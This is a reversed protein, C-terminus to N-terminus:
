LYRVKVSEQGEWNLVEKVVAIANTGETDKELVGAGIKLLDGAAVGGTVLSAAYIHTCMTEPIRGRGATDKPTYYERETLKDDYMKPVSINVVLNGRKTEATADKVKLLEHDFGESGTIVSDAMGVIELFMGRDLDKHAKFSVCKGYGKSENLLLRDAM